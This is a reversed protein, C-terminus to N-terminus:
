VLVKGEARIKAVLSAPLMKRVEARTLVIPVVLEGQRAAVDTVADDVRAELAQTRRRVQVLLDIDSDRRDDGRAVSGYLVVRELAPGLEAQLRRAFARAVRRRRAGSGNAGM